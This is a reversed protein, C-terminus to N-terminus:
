RRRGGFGQLPKDPQQHPNRWENLMVKGLQTLPYMESVGDRIANKRIYGLFQLDTKSYQIDQTPIWVWMRDRESTGADLDKMVQDRAM